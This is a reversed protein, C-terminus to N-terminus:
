KFYIKIIDDINEIFFGLYHICYYNFILSLLLLLFLLIFGNKKVNKYIKIYYDVLFLPIIKVKLLFNRITNEETYLCFLIYFSSIILYMELSSLKQILCLLDLGDNGSLSLVSRVIETIEDSSIFKSKGINDSLNGAINKAAVLVTGGIGAGAVTSTKGSTSPVSKAIQTGAYIATSVLASDAARTAEGGRAGCQPQKSRM